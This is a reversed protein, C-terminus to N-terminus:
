RALILSLALSRYCLEVRLHMWRGFDASNLIQM